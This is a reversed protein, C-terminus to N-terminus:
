ISIPVEEKNNLLKLNQVRLQTRPVGSRILEARKALIKNEIQQDSKSLSRSIFIPLDYNKFLYGKSICKEATWASHFTVIMNRPRSNDEAREKGLRVVRVIDSPQYEGIRELIQKIYHADNEIQAPRNGKSEPVGSVRIERKHIDSVLTPQQPVSPVSTSGSAARQAWTTTDRVENVATGIESSAAYITENSALITELKVNM